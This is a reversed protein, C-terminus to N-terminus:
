VIFNIDTADLDTVGTLTIVMDQDNLIGDGNVDVYLRSDNRDLVVETNGSNTLATLVAGYGNVEGIYSGTGVVVQGLAILDEGSEFDTIVDINLGSSELQHDYFFTDAGDGGTLVDGGLGGTIADDGSGGDITDVFASFDGPLVGTYDVLSDDGWLTDDGTGGNLEDAGLFGELFDDGAGGGLVDDQEGGSVTDDNDSGIFTLGADTEALADVSVGGTSSDDDDDAIDSADITLSGLTSSGDVWSDDVLITVQGNDSGSFDGSNDLLTISDISGANVDLLISGDTGAGAQANDIDTDDGDDNITITLDVDAGNSADTFTLTRGGEADLYIDLDVAGDNDVDLAGNNLDIRLSREFDPGVILEVNAQEGDDDEVILREIGAAWADDDLSVYFTGGDEGRVELEEVNDVNDFAEDSDPRMPDQTSENVILRDTGAGGDVTDKKSFVDDILDITDDGSGTLIEYDQSTAVEITFDGAYATADVLQSTSNFVRLNSTSDGTVTLSDDFDQSTDVERNGVGNNELALHEIENGADGDDELDVEFKAPANVSGGYLEVSLSDEDGSGDKLTVELEVDEGDDSDTSTIRIAETTLNTLRVEQDASGTATSANVINITALAEDFADLDIEHDVDDDDQDTNGLALTEVGTVTADDTVVTTSGSGNQSNWLQLQDDGEGGMVVGGDGVTGDYVQILDNGEGADVMGDIDDFAGGYYDEGEIVLQDNGTGLLVRGPVDDADASDGAIGGDLYVYDDGNGTDIVGTEGVAYEDDYYYYGYDNYVYVDDNGDGTSISGNVTADYGYDEYGYIVVSDDGERTEITNGFDWDSDIYLEDDGVGTDITDVDWQTTDAYLDGAYATSDLTTGGNTDIRMGLHEEQVGGDQTYDDGGTVTIQDLGYGELWFDSEFGDSGDDEINLVEVGSDVYLNVDGDASSGVERVMLDLTDDSGTVVQDDFDISVDQAVDDLNVDVMNQLDRVYLENTSRLVNLTQLGDVGTMSIEVDEDEGIARINITEVNDVLFGAYLGDGGEGGNGALTLDLEDNGAGGDISDALGLTATGGLFRDFGAGGKLDDIDVTLSQTTDPATGIAAIVDDIQATADTVSDADAGVGALLDVAGAMAGIGNYALIEPTTDLADTFSNAVTWKNVFADLDTGQAGVFLALPLDSLTVNGDTIEKVWFALGAPEADRNFMQNYLKNVAAATSLGGYVASAEESNGFDATVAKLDGGAADIVSAWYALGLPDAPRGYYAVYFLQAKGESTAPLANAM